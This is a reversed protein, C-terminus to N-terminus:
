LFSSELCWFCGGGLVLTLPGTDPQLMAATEGEALATGSPALAPAQTAPPIPNPNM